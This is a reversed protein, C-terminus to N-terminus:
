LNFAIKYKICKKPRAWMSTNNSSGRGLYVKGTARYTEHFTGVRWWDLRCLNADKLVKTIVKKAKDEPTEPKVQKGEEEKNTEEEEDDGKKRKTKKKPAAKVQINAFQLAKNMGPAAAMDGQVTSPDLCGGAATFAAIM